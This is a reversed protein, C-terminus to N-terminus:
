GRQPQHQATPSAPATDTAKAPGANAAAILAAAALVAAAVARVYRLSPRGYPASTREPM